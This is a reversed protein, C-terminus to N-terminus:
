PIFVGQTALLGNGATSAVSDPGGDFLKVQDFQWMTRRTTQVAGPLVANATTNIDCTSGITTSAVELCSMAVPFTTDSVTAAVGGGAGSFRDTIRLPLVLELQGTYDPGSLSNAAGCATTVADCRIDTIAAAIRVDSPNPSQVLVNLKVFGSSNAGAGNADPTGITLNTSARVPPNCSPDALPPGHTRNPSACAAFAPVFPFRLTNATRPRVYTAAPNVTTQASAVTDASDPDSATSTVGANNTITGASQPRIQITVTADAGNALTGLPCTVTGAAQSCSGQSPTASEYTVGGPLNDTVSVGTANSPGSNHVSLTYTIQEGVFAPDPSDTKTLSLDAVRTVTTDADSSNNATTIDEVDSSVEAHNTATGANQPRVKIEIGASGQDAV